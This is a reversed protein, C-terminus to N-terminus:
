LNTLLVGALVIALWLVGSVIASQRLASWQDATSADTSALLTALSREARLLRVGNLLLLLVLTMKVWFVPSTAFAEVDAAALLLGSVLSVALAALVPRHTARLEDLQRARATPDTGRRRATVRLTVRDAALALGGGILLAALHAFLVASAVARSDAYLTQWPAVAAAIRAVLSTPM